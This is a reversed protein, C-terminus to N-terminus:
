VGEDDNAIVEKPSHIALERWGQLQNVANYHPVKQFHVIHRFNWSVILDASAVTALAVHLADDAWRPSVIGASVYAAQLTLAEPTVRILEITTLMAGFLQKVTEPARELEDAVLFSSLLRFRGSAVQEFFTRSDAAFEPDFLGGFVSSDAYVRINTRKM